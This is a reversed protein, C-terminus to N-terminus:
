PRKSDAFLHTRIQSSPTAPCTALPIDWGMGNNGQQLCVHAIGYLFSVPIYTRAYPILRYCVFVPLFPNLTITHTYTTHSTVSRFVTPRANRMFPIGENPHPGSGNVLATPPPLHPKSNSMPHTLLTTTTTASTRHEWFM